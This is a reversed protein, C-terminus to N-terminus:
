PQRSAAAIAQQLAAIRPDQPAPATSGDGPNDPSLSAPTQVVSKAPPPGYEIMEITAHYLGKGVHELGTYHKVVVATLGISALGPYYIALGGLGQQILPNISLVNAVFQDWESFDNSFQAGQNSQDGAGGIAATRGFAYMGGPGVLQLTISGECPPRDKLTLTAGATGKGKKIDWGTERKFGKVGGRAITGPSVSGLLRFYLWSNITPDTPSPGSM